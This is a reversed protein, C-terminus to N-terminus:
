KWLHYTNGQNTLGPTFNTKGTEDVLIGSDTLGPLQDCTLGHPGYKALVTGAPLPQLNPYSNNDFWQGKLWDKTLAVWFKGNPGGMCLAVNDTNPALPAAAKPVPPPVCVGLHSGPHTIVYFFASGFDLYITVGQATCVAAPPPAVSASSTAAITLACAAIAALALIARKM